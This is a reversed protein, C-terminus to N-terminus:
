GRSGPRASAMEAITPAPDEEDQPEQSDSSQRGDRNSRKPRDGTGARQLGFEEGVAEGAKAIATAIDEGNAMFAAAYEDAIMQYARKAKIEPYDEFLQAVAPKADIAQMVRETVAEVLENSATM